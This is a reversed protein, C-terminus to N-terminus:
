VRIELNSIKGCFICASSKKMLLDENKIQETLGTNIKKNKKNKKVFNKLSHM